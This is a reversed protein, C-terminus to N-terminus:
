APTNAMTIIAPATRTATDKPGAHGFTSPSKSKRKRHRNRDTVTRYEAIKGTLAWHWPSEPNLGQHATRKKTVNQLERNSPMVTAPM